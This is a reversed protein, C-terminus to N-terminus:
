FSALLLVIPAILSFGVAAASSATMLAAAAGRGRMVLASSCDRAPVWLLPILALMMMALVTAALTTSGIRAGDGSDVTYVLAPAAVLWCATLYAVGGSLRGSGPIRLYLSTLTSCSLGGLIGIPPLLMIFFLSGFLGRLYRNQTRATPVLTM